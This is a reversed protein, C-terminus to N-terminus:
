IPPSPPLQKGPVVPMFMSTMERYVGGTQVCDQLADHAKLNPVKLMGGLYGLGVKPFPPRECFQDFRDNIFLAVAQTDRYHFHFFHDFSVPGGLWAMIHGRDFLWNSGIPMIKKGLPLGLNNFWTEFLDVAKWPDIAHQQLQAFEMKGIMLAQPDINEPRKLKMNIYFPPIKQNPNIQSDLPLVAFQWIDHYDPIFGTTEVDVACLLNGNTHAM